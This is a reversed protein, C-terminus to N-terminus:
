CSSKLSERRCLVTVIIKGHIDVSETGVPEAGLILVHENLGYRELGLSFVLHLLMGFLVLTSYLSRFLWM